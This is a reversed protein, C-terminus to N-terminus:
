HVLVASVPDLRFAEHCADCNDQLRQMSAQVAAFDDAAIAQGIAGAADRMETAYKYWDDLMEPDEVEHTDVVAAQGIAALLAAQGAVDDKSRSLLAESRTYRRLLSNVATVQKMLLGLQARKEWALTKGGEAGDKLAATLKDYAVKAQAQDEASAVLEESLEVLMPASSKVASDEDHLGLSMFLVILVSADKAVRSQTALSYRDTDLSKGIRDVYYDVRNMLADVSAFQSVPPAEPPAAQNQAAFAVASLVAVGVLVKLAPSKTVAKWLYCCRM